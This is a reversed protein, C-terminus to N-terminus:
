GGQTMLKKLASDYGMMRRWEALQGIHWSHHLLCQFFLVQGNTPMYRELKWSCPEEFQAEEAKEILEVLQEYKQQLVEILEGKGPYRETEKTPQTPDGPGARRFLEDWGEPVEYEQGLVKASLATATVLHGITFAPHNTFGNPQKTMDEEEVDMILQMSYDMNLKFGNLLTTKDM